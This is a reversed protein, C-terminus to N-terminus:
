VHKMVHCFDNQTAPAASQLGADDMDRPLRLVEFTDTQTNKAFRMTLATHLPPLTCIGHCAHCKQSIYHFNVSAKCSVKIKLYYIRLNM